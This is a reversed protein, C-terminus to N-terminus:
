YMPLCTSQFIYKTIVIYEIYLYKYVIDKISGQLLLIYIIYTCIDYVCIYYILPFDKNLSSYIGDKAKRLMIRFTSKNRVFAIRKKTPFRM